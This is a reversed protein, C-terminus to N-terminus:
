GHFHPAVMWVGDKGQETAIEDIAINELHLRAVLGDALFALLLFEMFEALVVADGEVIGVIENGVDFHALVHVAEVVVLDLNAEVVAGGVVEGFGAVHEAGGEGGLFDALVVEAILPHLSM